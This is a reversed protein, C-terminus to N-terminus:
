KKVRRMKEKVADIVFQKMSVKLKVCLQKLEDHLQESVEAIIRKIM